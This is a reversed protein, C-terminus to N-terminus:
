LGNDVHNSEHVRWKAPRLFGERKCLPVHFDALLESFDQVLAKSLTVNQCLGVVDVGLFREEDLYSIIYVWPTKIGM